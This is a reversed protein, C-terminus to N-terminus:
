LIWFDFGTLHLLRFVIQATSFTVMIQHEKHCHVPADNMIQCSFNISINQMEM